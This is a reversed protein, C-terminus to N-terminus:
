EPVVKQIFAIVCGVLVFWMFIPWGFSIVAVGVYEIRSLSINKANVYFLISGLVVVAIILYLLFM